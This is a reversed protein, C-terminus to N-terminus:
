SVHHNGRGCVTLTCFIDGFNEYQQKKTGKATRKEIGRATLISNIKSRLGVFKSIAQGAMKDIM